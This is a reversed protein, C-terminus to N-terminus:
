EDLLVSLVAEWIQRQGLGAYTGAGATLKAADIGFSWGSTSIRAVSQDRVPSFIRYQRGASFGAGRSGAAGVAILWAVASKDDQWGGPPLQKPSSRPMALLEGAATSFAPHADQRLRNANREIQGISTGLM